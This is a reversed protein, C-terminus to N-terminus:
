PVQETLVTSRVDIPLPARLATFFLRLDGRCRVVTTALGSSVDRGAAATCRIASADDDDLGVRILSDARSAGAGPDSGASAAYRAAQAAAQAVVNQAYFYVAAQLVAFLLFILLVSILVFDVVASGEDGEASGEDGENPRGGLGGARGQRSAPM